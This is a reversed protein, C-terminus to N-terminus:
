AALCLRVASKGLEYTTYITEQIFPQRIAVPGAVSQSIEDEEDKKLKKIEAVLRWRPTLSVLSEILEPTHEIGLEDFLEILLEELEEPAEVESTIIKNLIENVVETTESESIAIVESLESLSEAVEEIALSIEQAPEEAAAGEWVPAFFEPPQYAELDEESIETTVEESDEIVLEEEFINDTIKAEVFIDIIEAAPESEVVEVENKEYSPESTEDAMVITELGLAVEEETILVPEEIEEEPESELEDLELKIEVSDVVAVDAEPMASTPAPQEPEILTEMVPSEVEDLQIEVASAELELKQVKEEVVIKPVTSEPKAKTLAQVKPVDTKKIDPIGGSKGVIKIPAPKATFQTPQKSEGTAFIAAVEAQVVTVSPAETNTTQETESASEVQQEASEAKPAEQVKVDQTETNDKQDKEENQGAEQAEDPKVEEPEDEKVPEETKEVRNALMNHIKALVSSAGELIMAGQSSRPYIAILAESLTMEAGGLYECRILTNGETAM